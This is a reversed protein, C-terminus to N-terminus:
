NEVWVLIAKRHLYNEWDVALSNWVTWVFLCIFLYVWVWLCPMLAGTEFDVANLGIKMSVTAWKYDGGSEM